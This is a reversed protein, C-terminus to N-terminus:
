PKDSLRQSTTPTGATSCSLSPTSPRSPPTSPAFKRVPNGACMWGSALVQGPTTTRAAAALLAGHRRDDGGGGLQRHRDADRQRRRLRQDHRQPGRRSGPRHLCGAGHLLMAMHDEISTRAGISIAGGGADFDNSHWISAGAAARIARAPL